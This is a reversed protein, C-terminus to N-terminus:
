STIVKVDLIRFKNVSDSIEKEKNFVKSIEKRASELLTDIPRLQPYLEDEYGHSKDIYHILKALENIITKIVRYESRHTPFSKERARKIKEYEHEVFDSSFIQMRSHEDTGTVDKIILALKDYNNLRDLETTIASVNENNM